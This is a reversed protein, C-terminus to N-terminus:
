LATDALVCSGREETQRSLNSIHDPGKYCPGVVNRDTVIRQPFAHGCARHYNQAAFIVFIKFDHQRGELKSSHAPLYVVFNAERGITLIDEDEVPAEKAVLILWLKEWEGQSLTDSRHSKVKEQVYHKRDLFIIGLLGHPIEKGIAPRDFYKIIISPQEFAGVFDRGCIFEKCLLFPTCPDNLFKPLFLAIVDFDLQAVLHYVNALILPVERQHGRGMSLNYGFSPPRPHKDGLLKFNIHYEV